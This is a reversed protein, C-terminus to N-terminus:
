ARAHGAFVGQTPTSPFTGCTTGVVVGVPVHGAPMTISVSLEIRSLIAQMSLLVSDGIGAVKDYMSSGTLIVIGHVISDPMFAGYAERYFKTGIKIGKAENQSCRYDM